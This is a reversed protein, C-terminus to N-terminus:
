EGNQLEPIEGPLAQPVKPNGPISGPYAGYLALMGGDRHEREQGLPIRKSTITM